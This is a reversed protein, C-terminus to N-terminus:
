MKPMSPSDPFASPGPPPTASDRFAEPMQRPLLLGRVVVNTTARLERGDARRFVLTLPVPDGNALDRVIGNFRLHDGRYALRATKGASVAFSKVVEESAPDGIQRVRVIEVSGAVPTSAGVLELAAGSEIDVYVRATGAQAPAPRMWANRLTVEAAQATLAFAFAALVLSLRQLRAKM